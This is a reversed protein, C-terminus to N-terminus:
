RDLSNGLLGYAPALLRLDRGNKTPPPIAVNQGTFTWKMPKATCTNVPRGSKEPVKCALFIINLSLSSFSSAAVGTASYRFVPDCGKVFTTRIRVTM